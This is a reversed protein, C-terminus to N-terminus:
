MARHIDWILSLKLAGHYIIERQNEKTPTYCMDQMACQILHDYEFETRFEM